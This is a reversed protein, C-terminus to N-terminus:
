EVGHWGSAFVCRLGKRACAPVTSRGAIGGGRNEGAEPFVHREHACRASHRTVVRMM